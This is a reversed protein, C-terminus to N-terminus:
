QVMQGMWDERVDEGVDEGVRAETGGERSRVTEVLKRKVVCMTIIITTVGLVIGSIVGIVANRNDSMWEIAEQFLARTATGNMIKEGFTSTSSATDWPHATGETIVSENLEIVIKKLKFIVTETIETEIDDPETTAALTGEM